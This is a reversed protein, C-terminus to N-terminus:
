NFEQEQFPNPNEGTQASEQMDRVLEALNASKKQVDAIGPHTVILMHYASSLADVNTQGRRTVERKLTKEDAKYTAKLSAERVKASIQGGEFVNHMGYRGNVSSIGLNTLVGSLPERLEEPLQNIGWYRVKGNQSM